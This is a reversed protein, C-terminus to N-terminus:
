ASPLPSSSHWTWQAGERDRDSPTPLNSAATALVPAPTTPWNAPETDPTNPVIATSGRKSGATKSAAVASEPGPAPSTLPLM